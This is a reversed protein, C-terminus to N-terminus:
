RNNRYHSRHFHSELSKISLPRIRIKSRDYTDNNSVPDDLYCDHPLMAPQLLPIIIRKATDKSGSGRNLGVLVVPFFQISFASQIPIIIPRSHIIYRQTSPMHHIRHRILIITPAHINITLVICNFINVWISLLYYRNWHRICRKWEIRRYRIRLTIIQRRILLYHSM